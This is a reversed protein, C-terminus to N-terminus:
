RESPDGPKLPQKPQAQPKEGVTVMNTHLLDCGCHNPLGEQFLWVFFAGRKLRIAGVSGCRTSARM